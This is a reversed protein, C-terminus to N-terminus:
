KFGYEKWNGEIKKRLGETYNDHYLGRPPIDKERTWDVPWTCDLVVKAGKRASREEDTLHPTLASVYEDRVITIGRSPSCKTSLAHLVESMNFVDVDDDVVILLDYQINNSFLINKLQTVATPSHPSRLGVVVAMSWMERPTNVGTVPIGHELLHKKMGAGTARSLFPGAGLMALVPDKRHTLAKVKVLPRMEVGTQYGSYEVFPGEPIQVGPLVEGELVIEAGAPVLLDSTECKVLQVPQQELAGVYDVESEGLPLFTAAMLVSLPSAGVVIAVPMPRNQPLYKERYLVGAQNGHHVFIGVHDRNHVMIRYMGWNMWGSGPDKVIVLHCTGIYRGGDGDDILPVPLRFLDVDKGTYINEKCPGDKVLVPKVPKEMRKEYEQTMATPPSGPPMGLAVAVRRNTGHPAGLIRCGGPYDKINEFLVATGQLMMSRRTIAGAELEWDVKQKIRVLDGSKDLAEIFQRLDTAPM